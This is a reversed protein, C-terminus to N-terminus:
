ETPTEFKAKLREYTEREQQRLRAREEADRRAAAGVADRLDDETVLGLSLLSKHNYIYKIASALDPGEDIEVYRSEYGAIQVAAYGDEFVVVFYNDDYVGYNVVKKGVVNDWNIRPLM